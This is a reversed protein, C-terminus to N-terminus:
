TQMIDGQKNLTHLPAHELIMLKSVESPLSTPKMENPPM